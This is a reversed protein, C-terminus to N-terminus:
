GQSLSRGFSPESDPRPLWSCHSLLAAPQLHATYSRCEALDPSPRRASTTSCPSQRQSHSTILATSTYGNSFDSEMRTSYGIQLWVTDCEIVRLLRTVLNYVNQRCFLPPMAFVFFFLAWNLDFHASEDGHCCWKLYAICTHSNHLTGSGPVSFNFSRSWVATAAKPPNSSMPFRDDLWGQLTKEGWFRVRCRSKLGFSDESQNIRHDQM